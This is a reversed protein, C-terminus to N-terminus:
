IPNSRVARDPALFGIERAVEAVDTEALLGAHAMPQSLARERDSRLRAHPFRQASM